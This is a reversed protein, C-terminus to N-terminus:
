AVVVPLGEAPMFHGLLELRVLLVRGFTTLVTAAGSLPRPFGRSSVELQSRCGGVTTQTRQGNLLLAV